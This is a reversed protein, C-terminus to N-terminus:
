TSRPGCVMSTTHRRPATSISTSARPGRACGGTGITPSAVPVTGRRPGRPRQLLRLGPGAADDTGEALRHGDRRRGMCGDRLARLGPQRHLRGDAPRSSGGRRSAPSARRHRQPHGDRHRCSRRARGQDSPRPGRGAGRGRPGSRHYRAQRFRADPLDRRPGAGDQGVDVRFARDGSGAGRRRALSRQRAVGGVGCPRQRHLDGRRSPHARRGEPRGADGADDRGARRYLHQAIGPADREAGPRAGGVPRPHCPLHPRPRPEDRTDGHIQRGHHTPRTAAM